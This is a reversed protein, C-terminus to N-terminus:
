LLANEATGAVLSHFHDPMVCYALVEFQFTASFQLFHSAIRQGRDIDLFAPKRSEVCVTLFYRNFGSYDFDPFRPPRNAM